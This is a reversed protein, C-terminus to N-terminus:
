IHKNGDPFLRISSSIEKSWLIAIGGFGRIREVHLIRQEDDVFHAYNEFNPFLVDLEKEEFKFLWTEQLLIISIKNLIENVSKGRIKQVNLTRIRVINKPQSCIAQCSPSIHQNSSISTSARDSSTGAHGPVAM